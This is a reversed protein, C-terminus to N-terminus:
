KIGVKHNRKIKDLLALNHERHNIYIALPQEGSKLCKLAVWFYDKAVEVKKGIRAMMYKFERGIQHNIGDTFM